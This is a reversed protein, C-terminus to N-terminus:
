KIAHPCGNRRLSSLTRRAKYPLQATAKNKSATLGALLLNLPPAAAQSIFTQLMLLVFLSALKASHQIIERESKKNNSEKDAWPQVSGLCTSM